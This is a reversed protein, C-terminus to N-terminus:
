SWVCRLRQYWGVARSGMGELEFDGFAVWAQVEKKAGKDGKADSCHFCFGAIHRRPM